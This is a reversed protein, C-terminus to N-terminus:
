QERESNPVVLNFNEVLNDITEEDFTYGLESWDRPSEVMEGNENETYIPYYDRYYRDYSCLGYPSNWVIACWAGSCPLGVADGLAQDVIDKANSYAINCYLNGDADYCQYITKGEDPVLYYMEKMGQGYDYSVYLYDARSVIANKQEREVEQQQQNQVILQPIQQQGWTRDVIDSPLWCYSKIYAGGIVYAETSEANWWQLYSDADYEVLKNTIEVFVNSSSLYQCGTTEGNLLDVENVNHMGLREYNGKIDVDDGISSGSVSYGDQKTLSVGDYQFFETLITTGDAVYRVYRWIDFGITRRSQDNLFSYCRVIGEEPLIASGDLVIESQLSVIGNESEYMQLKLGSEEGEQSAVLLEKQNDQDFDEIQYGLVSQPFNSQSKTIGQEDHVLWIDYPGEQTYQLSWAFEYLQNMNKLYDSTSSTQEAWVSSSSGLLLGVTMVWIRKM